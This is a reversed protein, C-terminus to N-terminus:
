ELPPLRLILFIWFDLNSFAAISPLGKDSIETRALEADVILDAVPALQQLHRRQLPKTCERYAPDPWRDSEALATGPSGGTFNGARRDDKVTSPLRRYAASFGCTQGPSHLLGALATEPINPTAGAAIWVEMVKIEAATLAPKGEAPMVDKSGPPLTIRRFLESKGTEGPHIVLGDKGGHMLGSYSDLRLSGKFKDANHCLVCKEIFIPQVRVAYFSTPDVDLKPKRVLGSVSHDQCANPSSPRM